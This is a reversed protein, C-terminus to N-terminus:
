RGQDDKGPGAQGDWGTVVFRGGRDDMGAPVLKGIGIALPGLGPQILVELYYLFGELFCVSRCQSIGAM